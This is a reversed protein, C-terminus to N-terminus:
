ILAGSEHREEGQPCLCSAARTCWPQCASSLHRAPHPEAIQALRSLKFSQSRTLPASWTGECPSGLRAARAAMAPWPGAKDDEVVELLHRLESRVRHLPPELPSWVRAEDHRARAGARAPRPRASRRRERDLRSGSKGHAARAAAHQLSSSSGAAAAATMLQDLEDVADRERDLEGAARIRHHMRDLDDGAHALPEPNPARALAPPRPPGAM